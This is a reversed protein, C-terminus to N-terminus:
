VKKCSRIRSDTVVTNVARDFRGHSLHRRLEWDYCLGVSYGTYRSMYRDYYGKGYGIRYGNYDFQIGPLIMLCGAFDTLREATEDPEAVGFTGAKLEDLSNIYYFEMDRTGDTCKPVAVRKGEALATNIIERTNVEIPTSVYIMLTTCPKYQYLRFVNKAIKGDLELRKEPSLSNRLLRGQERIEGKYARIDIPRM